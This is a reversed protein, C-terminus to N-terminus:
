KLSTADRVQIAAPLLKLTLFADAIRQQDAITDATIAQVGRAQRKAIEELVDPDVGVDPALLEAVDKPKQLAWTDAKNIEDLVVAVLDPHAHAFDRQAIFFERNAVLKTGDLLIKAKTSVRAATLFPDWIVWADVHGQEFASRADAPKLFEVQVDSYSLGNAELAKVLFYHVNSGKNLAVKKGKLDKITNLPSGQPVLIAESDPNPPENGVYLLPVGAAQAFIPPAEGTSGFDISGVNLGELLQPGAQFLSWEVTVGADALRHELTGHAKLINLSGYRQYGIHITSAPARTATVGTALDAATIASSSIIGIVVLM